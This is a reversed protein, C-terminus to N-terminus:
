TRDKARLDKKKKATDVVVMMTHCLDQRKTQSGYSQDGPFNRHTSIRERGRPCVEREECVCFIDSM